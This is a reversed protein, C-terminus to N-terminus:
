LMVVSRPVLDPDETAFQRWWRLCEGCLLSRDGTAGTWTAVARVPRPGPDGERTIFACCTCLGERLCTARRTQLRYYEAYRDDMM